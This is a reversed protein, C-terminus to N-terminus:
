ALEFSITHPVPEHGLNLQDRTMSRCKPESKVLLSPTGATAAFPSVYFARSLEMHFTCKSQESYASANESPAWPVQLLLKVPYDQCRRLHTEADTLECCQEELATTSASDSIIHESFWKLEEPSKSPLDEVSSTGTIGVLYLPFTGNRDSRANGRLRPVLKGKGKSVGVGEEGVTRVDAFGIGAKDRQMTQSPIYYIGEPTPAVQPNARDLLAARVPHRRNLPVDQTRPATLRYAARGVM